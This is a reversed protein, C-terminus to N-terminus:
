GLKLNIIDSKTSNMMNMPLRSQPGSTEMMPDIDKGVISSNTAALFNQAFGRNNTQGLPSTTMFDANLSSLKRAKMNRSTDLQALIPEKNKNVIPLKVIKGDKVTRTLPKQIVEGNKLLKFPRLYTQEVNQRQEEM